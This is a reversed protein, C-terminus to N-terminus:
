RGIYQGADRTFSETVESSSCHVDQVTHARMAECKQVEIMSLRGNKICLEMTVSWAM